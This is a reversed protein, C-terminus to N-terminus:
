EERLAQIPNLRAARQAPLLSALLAILGLGLVSFLITVPDNPQMGFILAKAVSATILALFTGVALGAILLTTAERMIMSLISHRDAGLAIRIGIENRRRVVMYSIVGYLGIMALIAALFGFFGSLTAMLRERLLGQRVLDRFVTFELSISPHIERAANKIVATVMSLEESSRVVLLAAQDPQPDQAEPVYVIPTFDERLKFYKADNVLGVIQFVQDPKGEAQSVRFSVGIPNQHKTLFRKVFSQTVIAVLPANLTDSKNFDRGAIMRTGVTQFYGDSVQNFNAIENVNLEPIQVSENWGSGSLPVIAVSAASQISGLSRIRELIQRKYAIRQEPPIEV